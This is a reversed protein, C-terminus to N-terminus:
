NNHVHVEKLEDMGAWWMKRRAAAADANAIALALASPSPAHCARVHARYEAWADDLRDSSAHDGFGCAEDDRMRILLKLRACEECKNM